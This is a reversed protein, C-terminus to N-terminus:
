VQIEGVHRKFEFGLGISVVCWNNPDLRIGLDFEFGIWIVVQIMHDLGMSGLVPKYLGESGLSAHALFGVWIM